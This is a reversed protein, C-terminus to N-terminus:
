EPRCSARCGQLPEVAVVLPDCGPGSGRVPHDLRDAGVLVVLAGNATTLPGFPVHEAGHGAVESLEVAARHASQLTHENSADPSAAM